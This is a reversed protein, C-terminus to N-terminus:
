KHRLDMLFNFKLLCLSPATVLLLHDLRVLEVALDLLILQAKVASVEELGNTPLLILLVFSLSLNLSLLTLGLDDAPFYGGRDTLDEVNRVHTLNHNASQEDIELILHDVM